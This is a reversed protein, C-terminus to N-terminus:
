VPFKILKQWEDIKFTWLNYPRVWIDSVSLDLAFLVIKKLIKICYKLGSFLRSHLDDSKQRKFYGNKRNIINSSVRDIVFFRKLSKWGRNAGACLVKWWFRHYWIAIRQCRKKGQWWLALPIEWELALLSEINFSFVYLSTWGKSRNINVETKGWNKKREGPRWIRVFMFGFLQISIELHWVANCSEINSKENRFM